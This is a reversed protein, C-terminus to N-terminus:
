FYKLKIPSPSVSSLFKKGKFKGPIFIDIVDQDFDEEKRDDLEVSEILKTHIKKLYPLRDVKPMKKKPKRIFKSEQEILQKIIKKHIIINEYLKTTKDHINKILQKQKLKSYEKLLKDQLELHKMTNKELKLSHNLKNNLNKQRIEKKILREDEASIFKKLVLKEKNTVLEEMNNTYLNYINM